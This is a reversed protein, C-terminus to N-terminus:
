ASNCQHHWYNKHETVGVYHWANTLFSLLSHVGFKKQFQLFSYVREETKYTLCISLFEQWWFGTNRFLVFLKWFSPLIDFVPHWTIIFLSYFSFHPVHGLSELLLCYIRCGVAWTEEDTKIFYVRSLEQLELMIKVLFSVYFGFRTLRLTSDQVYVSAGTTSGDSSAGRFIRKRHLDLQQKWWM